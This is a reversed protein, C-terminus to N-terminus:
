CVNCIRGLVVLLLDLWALGFLVGGLVDTAYHAALAMRAWAIGAAWVALAISLTVQLGTALPLTQVFAILGGYFVVATCAHGSPYSKGRENRYLWDDPRVRNFGSKLLHAAQQSVLQTIGLALAFTLDRRLGYEVVGAAFTLVTLEPWYGSRTFLIALPTLRGRLRVSQVDLATLPRNAVFTGLGLMAMLAGAAPAVLPVAGIM